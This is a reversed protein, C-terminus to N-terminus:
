TPRSSCARSTWRRAGPRVLPGALTKALGPVDELLVHGDALIAMLVLELSSRKGIVAREVQELVAECRGQVADVGLASM